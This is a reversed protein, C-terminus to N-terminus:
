QGYFVHLEQKKGEYVESFYLWLNNYLKYNTRGLKKFSQM